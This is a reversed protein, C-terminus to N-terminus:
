SQGMVYYTYEKLPKNKYNLTNITSFLSHLEPVEAAFEPLMSLVYGILKSTTDKAIISAMALNMKQLVDPRHEVTVFGDSAQMQISINRKLNAQQLALIELVDRECQDTIISIM